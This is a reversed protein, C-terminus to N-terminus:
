SFQGIRQGIQSRPRKAASDPMWIKALALTKSSKPAAQGLRQGFNLWLFAAVPRGPAVRQGTAEM